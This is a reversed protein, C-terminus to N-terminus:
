MNSTHVFTVIVCDRTFTPQSQECGMNRRRYDIILARYPRQSNINQETDERLRWPHLPERDGELGWMGEEGGMTKMRSGAVECATARVLHLELM